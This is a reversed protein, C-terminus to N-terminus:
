IAPNQQPTAEVTNTDPYNLPKGAAIDAQLQALLSNDVM